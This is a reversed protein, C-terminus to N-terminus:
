LRKSPPSYMVANEPVTRVVLAGAGIKANNGIKVKPLVKAGVGIFVSEGVQVYGTLGVHASITSYDGIRVDHGIGSLGNISVFDGLHTDCSIVSHPFVVVGEGLVSSKAILASPHIFKAFTAGVKKLKQVVARKDKPDAIAIVLQDGSKPVFDDVAGLWPLKYSYGDLANQNTDLFGSFAHEPGADNAWNILERGFNGCCVLILRKEM